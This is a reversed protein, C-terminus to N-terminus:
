ILTTYTTTLTLIAVILNTVNQIVDNLRNFTAGAPMIVRRWILPKSDIFEIKIIYAKM